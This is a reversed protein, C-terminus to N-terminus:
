KEYVIKTLKKFKPHNILKTRQADTKNQGFADSMKKIERLAAERKKESM